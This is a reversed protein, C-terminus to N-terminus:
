ARPRVVILDLHEHVSVRHSPRLEALVARIEDVTPWQAPDLVPDLSGTFLRADDILYWDRATGPSTACLDDLLPCQRHAGATNGASWHGDLWYLTPETAPRLLKSSDGFRLRVNRYRRLRFWSRLAYNPSLEITEVRSFIHALKIASDGMLTGTEVARRIGTAAAERALQENLKGVGGRGKPEAGLTARRNVLREDASHQPDARRPMAALSQSRQPRYV